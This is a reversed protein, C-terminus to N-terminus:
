PDLCQHERINEQLQTAYHPNRALWEQRDLPQGNETAELCAVLVEDWEPDRDPVDADVTRM